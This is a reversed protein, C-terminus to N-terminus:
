REYAAAFHTFPENPRGKLRTYVREVDTKRLKPFVTKKFGVSEKSARNGLTRTAKLRSVNKLVWEHLGYKKGNDLVTDRSYEADWLHIFATGQRPHLVRNVERLAAYKDKMWPVAHVSVVFHFSDDKFPLSRGRALVRGRGGGKLARRLWSGYDRKKLNTAVVEFDAGKKELISQIKKLAKEKGAGLDLVRFKKGPKGAREWAGYAKLLEKDLEVGLQERYEELGRDTKGGEVRWGHKM